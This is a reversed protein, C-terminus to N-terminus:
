HFYKLIICSTCIFVYIDPYKLLGFHEPPLLKRTFSHHKIWIIQNMKKQGKLCFLTHAARTGCTHCLFPAAWRKGASRLLSALESRRESLLVPDDTSARVPTVTAGLAAKCPSDWPDAQSLGTTMSKPPFPYVHVTFLYMWKLVWTIEM